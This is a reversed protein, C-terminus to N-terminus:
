GAFVFMGSITGPMGEGADSWTMGNRV